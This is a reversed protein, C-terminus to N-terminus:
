FYHYWEKGCKECKMPTKRTTGPHEKSQAPTVPGTRKPDCDTKSCDPARNM